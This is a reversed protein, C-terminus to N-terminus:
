GIRKAYFLSDVNANQYIAFVSTNVEQKYGYIQVTTNDSTITIPITKTWATRNATASAVTVSLYAQQWVLSGPVTTGGSKIYTYGIVTDQVTGSTILIGGLSQHLEWNGKNLVITAGGVATETLGITSTADITCGKIEGIYGAPVATGSMDGAVNRASVVRNFNASNVTPIAAWTGATAQTSKLIAILRAAKNTQAATSYAVSIADAAGAGGEATTSIVVATDILSTSAALVITGANNIAYVYIPYEVASVHGLTSGSSIVLSTAATALVSSYTGTSNTTDRFNIICPDTASADAGAKTKLAITLASSGVTCVVSCNNLGYPADVSFPMDAPVLSRFAGTSNAGSTPGSLVKNAAPNSELLLHSM